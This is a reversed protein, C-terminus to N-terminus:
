KENGTESHIKMIVDTLDSFAALLKFGNSRSLQYLDLLVTPEERETGDELTQPPFTVVIVGTNQYFRITTPKEHEHPNEM